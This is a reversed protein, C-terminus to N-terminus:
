ADSYNRPMSSYSSSFLAHFVPYLAVTFLFQLVANNIDIFKDSIFSLVVWKFLMTIGLFLAFGQWSFIFHRVHRGKKYTALVKLILNAFANLGIPSATILDKFIGLGFVFWSKMVDPRHTSWFYILMLDVSPFMPGFGGMRVPAHSLIVFGIALIKPFSMKLSDTLAM